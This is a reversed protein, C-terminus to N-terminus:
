TKTLSSDTTNEFGGLQIDFSVNEGELRLLKMDDGRGEAEGQLHRVNM